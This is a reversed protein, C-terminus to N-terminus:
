QNGFRHSFGVGASWDPSNKNAGLSIITDVQTNETLLFSIGSDYTIINGGDENKAIQQAAIELFGHMLSNIQIGYTTALIGSTFQHKNNRDLAIGPMLGLSTRDSLQWEAVTRLSPRIGNGRFQSTGSDIDLHILIALAPSLGRNDQLHVKLGLAIDSVGTEKTTQSPEKVSSSTWGDTEIRAEWNTGAGFRFLLPTTFTNTEETHTKFRELSFGVEIQQRGIGVVDSSEM